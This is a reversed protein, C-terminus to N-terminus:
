SGSAENCRRVLEQCARIDFLRLYVTAAPVQSASITACATTTVAVVTDKGPGSCMQMTMCHMPCTLVQAGSSHDFLHLQSCSTNVLCLMESAQEFSETTSMVVLDCWSTRVASNCTSGACQVKAPLARGARDELSRKEIRRPSIELAASSPCSQRVQGLTQLSTVWGKLGHLSSHMNNGHPVHSSAAAHASASPSPCAWSQADSSPSRAGASATGDYFDGQLRGAHKARDKECWYPETALSWSRLNWVDRIAKPSVGYLLALESGTRHTKRAKAQYIAIADSATIGHAQRSPAQLTARHMM